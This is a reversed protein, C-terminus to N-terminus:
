MKVSLRGTASSSVPTFHLFERLEFKDASCPTQALLMSQGLRVSFRLCFNTLHCATEFPIPRTDAAGFGGRCRHLRMGPSFAPWSIWRALSPRAKRPKSGTREGNVSISSEPGTSWPVVLTDREQPLPLSKTKPSLIRLREAVHVATTTPGKHTGMIALADDLKNFGYSRTYSIRQKIWM